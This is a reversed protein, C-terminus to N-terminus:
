DAGRRCGAVSPEDGLDLRLFAPITVVAIAIELGGAVLFAAEYGYAGAVTGGVLFGALFGVSGFLNFGGMAVGRDTERAIDTILAMTAPAVLAGLVGVLVMAARALDLSPALGVAIVGLGYLASGAVIPVTRGIRDSLAGMPYQLLAFPAFFLM